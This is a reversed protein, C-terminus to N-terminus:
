DDYNQTRKIAVPNGSPHCTDKDKELFAMLNAYKDEFALPTTIIPAYQKKNTIPLIAITEEIKQFGILTSMRELAARQTKNKFFKAYSPNVNKFLDIIANIRKGSSENVSNDSKDQLCTQKSNSTNKNNTEKNVLKNLIVGTDYPQIVGTDYPLTVGTDYPSPSVRTMHSNKKPKIWASKDLLYYINNLQTGNKRRIREIQILNWKTLVNIARIVTRESINLENAILKQSPYCKQTTINAHRCLSIYVATVTVGFMKAYGNLYENDMFFWEKARNDRIKIKEM